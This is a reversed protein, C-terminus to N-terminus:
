YSDQPSCYNIGAYALSLRHRSPDSFKRLQWQVPKFHKCASIIIIAIIIKIILMILIISITLIVLIISIISIILIIIKLTKFFILWDKLVICCTNSKVGQSFIMWVWPHNWPTPQFDIVGGVLSILLPHVGRPNKCLWKENLSTKKQFHCYQLFFYIYGREYFIRM